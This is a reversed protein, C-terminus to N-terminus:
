FTLPRSMKLYSIDSKNLKVLYRAICMQAAVFKNPGDIVDQSETGTNHLYETAMLKHKM